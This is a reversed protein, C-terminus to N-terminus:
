EKIEVQILDGSSDTLFVMSKDVVPPLIIADGSARIRGVINGNNKDIIHLYGEYDGVVINSGVVAAASLQRGYFDDMLWLSAGNSRDLAWIKSKDDVIYLNNVSDVIGTYSSIKRQWAPRGNRRSIATVNGGFSAIVVSEETVSIRGDIDVMREIDSRGRGIAVPIDAKLAGTQLDIAVLRGNDLGAIVDGNKIVPNSLGRLTLSPIDREFVWKVKKKTKDFATIAGDVSRVIILNDKCQPVSLIESAVTGKWEIDGNQINIFLLEGDRSGLVLQNECIAIGGSLQTETDKEWVVNGSNANIAVVDGEKGAAYVAENNVVPNLFVEGRLIDGSLDYSETVKADVTVNIDKLEKPEVSRKESSFWSCGYFFASITFIIFIKGTFAAKSSKM